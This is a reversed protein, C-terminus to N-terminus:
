EAVPQAALLLEREVIGQPDSTLHGVREAVRVLMADDMAVDLGLVDQELPGVGDHSVEADGARHGARRAVLDGLGAHGHPRDGVHTGLLRRAVAVDVASGIHVREAAHQVLHQGALRREGPGRRLADRALM